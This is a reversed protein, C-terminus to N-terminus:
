LMYCDVCVCYREGQCVCGGKGGLVCVCVCVSGGGCGGCCVCM